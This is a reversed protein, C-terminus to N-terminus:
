PIHTPTLWIALLRGIVIVLPEGSILWHFLFIVFLMAVSLLRGSTELEWDEICRSGGSDSGPYSIEKYGLSKIRATGAAASIISAATLALCVRDFPSFTRPLFIVTLPILAFLSIVLSVISRKVSVKEPKYSRARYFSQRSEALISDECSACLGTESPQSCRRCRTISSYSEDHEPVSM